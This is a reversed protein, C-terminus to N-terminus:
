STMELKEGEEVKIDAKGEKAKVAIEIAEEFAKVFAWCDAFSNFLPAPAVRVVDPQREDVVVSREVLEQMVVHLLGNGLQLSLQAGRQEPDSPTLIKFHSNKFAQSSLLLSELYATLKLSKARLATMGGALAFMELSANLATIDLISPNSLQFGAAGSIPDFSNDMAFRTSKSSGWWGGLRNINSDAHRSHVFLGGISGPGSNLYKYTCWVAADVDWDHLKLPVNGVSHALDWLVFIGLSRAHKTILPIDLFQGTYFQIGPLLLLATDKANADIESIIQDTTLTAAASSPSITVM